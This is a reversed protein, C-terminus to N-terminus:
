SDQGSRPSGFDFDVLVSPSVGRQLDLFDDFDVGQVLSSLPPAGSDVSSGAVGSGGTAVLLAAEEAEERDLEEDLAASQVDAKRDVFEKQKRLRALRSHSEALKDLLEQQAKEAAEIQARLKIQSRDVARGPVMLVFWSFGSGTSVTRWPFAPCDVSLVVVRGFAVRVTSAVPHSLAGYRYDRM